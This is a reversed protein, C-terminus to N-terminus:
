RTQRFATFIDNFRAYICGNGMTNQENYREFGGVYSVTRLQRNNFRANCYFQRNRYHSIYVMKDISDGLRIGKHYEKKMGDEFTIIVNNLQIM